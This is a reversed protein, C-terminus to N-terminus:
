WYKRVFELLECLGLDALENKELYTMNGNTDVVMFCFKGNCDGLQWSNALTHNRDVLVYGQNRATRRRTLSRILRDPLLTDSLNLVGFGFINDCSLVGSSEIVESHAINKNGSLATDPDIYFIFLVRKGFYPLSVSNGYLDSLTVDKVKYPLPPQCEACHPIIAFILLPFLKFTM